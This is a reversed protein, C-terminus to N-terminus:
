EGVHGLSDFVNQDVTRHAGPAEAGARLDLRHQRAELDDLRVSGGRGAEDGALESAVRRARRAGHPRTDPCSRIRSHGAAMVPGPAAPDPAATDSSPSSTLWRSVSVDSARVSSDITASANTVSGSRQRTTSRCATM